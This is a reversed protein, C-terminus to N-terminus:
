ETAPGARVMDLLRCVALTGDASLTLEATLVYGGPLDYGATRSARDGLFAALAGREELAVIQEIWGFLALSAQPGLTQVAARFRLSRLFTPLTVAPHAEAQGHLGAAFRVVARLWPDAESNFEPGSQAVLEDGDREVVVQEGDALPDRKESRFTAILPFVEDDAEKM